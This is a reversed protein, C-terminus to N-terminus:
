ASHSTQFEFGQNLFVSVMWLKMNELNIDMEGQKTHLTFTFVYNDASAALNSNHITFATLSELARYLLMAVGKAKNSVIRVYFGREEVQSVDMKFIKFYFSTPYSKVGHNLTNKDQYKDGGNNLSCEMSAIESKLKKAQMKMDQVYSVADGVISAKDMKTINPVLSRLAYLKEKMRSRRKRESILTRSRDTKGDSKKSTENNATTGGSGSGSWEEEEEEGMLLEEENAQNQCLMGNDVFGFDPNLNPNQATPVDYDFLGMAGAMPPPYFHAGVGVNINDHHQYHDYQYNINSSFIAEQENEGRILDIYRDVNAEDMFDILGFDTGYQQFPNMGLEHDSVRDM